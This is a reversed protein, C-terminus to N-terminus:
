RQRGQCHSLPNMVILLLQYPSLADYGGLYAGLLVGAWQCDLRMPMERVGSWAGERGVTEKTVLLKYQERIAPVCGRLHASVM